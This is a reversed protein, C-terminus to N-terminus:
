YDLYLCKVEKSFYVYAAYVDDYFHHAKLMEPDEINFKLGKGM